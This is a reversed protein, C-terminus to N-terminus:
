WEERLWVQRFGAASLRYAVSSMEEPRIGTIVIRYYDSFREYYPNFGAERLRRMAEQAHLADRFAGVQVRYGGRGSYYPLPSSPYM